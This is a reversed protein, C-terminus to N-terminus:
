KRNKKIQLDLLDYYYLRSPRILGYNTQEESKQCVNNLCMETVQM